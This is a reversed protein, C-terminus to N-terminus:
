LMDQITKTLELKILKQEDPSVKKNNSNLVYFADVVDDGRTAIKAYYINLGLENMTKTIQYLLGLRDPSYIDIITFKNHREFVIDVKTNRNFLRNELRWWKSRAKKFEKSIQLENDVALKIDEEIKEYRSTDVVRHTRFDTVNFSDIVIGDNRTFIKAGHINLDNIALAGCLYSLLARYDKTMVTINTFGAEEKFFVSTKVGRQLESVHENIENQTFQSTYGLDNISDIHEKVAKNEPHSAEALTELSDAYLLDEGSIREELMAMTKSYLELLLDSKWQTWVKENVSSLDAYTLLYLMDLARTNPFISAFSNLTGADNLNRRFAIQEMTLHYRVLFQVLAVEEDKYGLREMVSAAIEAGIIEHGSISIPKAIDHFLVALYLIDKDKLGSFLKGIYTSKGFLSELNNLAVITHEDATYCHYVGPQFFGVLERFETLFTGLFGLENMVSITKGVNKPLKLIERFFVSSEYQIGDHDEMELVKEIIKSRLNQDFRADYLGRYYFARMIVPISLNPLPKAAIINGKKTFQDDLEIALADSLPNSISEKFHKMMTRSFRKIISAARFYDLMYMQWADDTYELKKGIKEQSTFELWDTKHNTIIHLLNRTQLILRYSNILREEAKENIIGQERITSIFVQSHTKDSRDYIFTSNKLLYMWEVAHLDRLGGATFKVNPELMKASAGYKVHRASIDEIFKSLLRQKTEDNLSDILLNNWEDYIDSSGLIFRTEFFQTFAHLDDEVFKHIDGYERVTHSVEIGADWLLTVLKKISDTHNEVKEAIFMVDIDSHPSLEKRSFSGASALACTLDVDAAADNICKEVLASYAVCFKYSDNILEKDNMLREREALFKKKIDTINAM